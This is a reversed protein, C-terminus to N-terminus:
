LMGPGDVSGPIGVLKGEPKDRYGLVEPIACNHIPVKVYLYSHGLMLESLDLKAVGFPDWPKNRGKFPNHITRRGLFLYFNTDDIIAWMIVSFGPEIDEHIKTFLTSCEYNM